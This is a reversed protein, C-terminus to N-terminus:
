KLFYIKEHVRSILNFVYRGCHFNYKERFLFIQNGRSDLIRWINLLNIDFGFIRM